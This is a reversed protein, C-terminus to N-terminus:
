NTTAIWDLNENCLQPIKSISIQKVKADGAFQTSLYIPGFRYSVDSGPMLIPNTYILTLVHQGASIHVKTLTNTLTPNGEFVSHGSFVEVGDILLRLQGPFSGALSLDYVGTEDVSFTRSFGGPGDRDVAGSIADTPIWKSPLDGNSFSIMYTKNRVVAFIKDDKARKTLFNAVEVCSPISAPTFNNGLPLMRKIVPSNAVKKWVEYHSGSWVLAYNLPPRSAVPSKRLVLLNYYNITSPDFLGIDAAFGKPVQTGDSMLIPHVRLESASEAGLDRLFYRAGFVSYETMLAPGQGSYLRDITKLENMQSYPAIWVNRYTYFDSLVVGSGVLVALFIVLYKVKFKVIQTRRSQHIRQWLEIAGIAATMLYIPSAVAIAKGTIWIGAFFYSYGVVCTSAVVIAPVVWLRKKISYFIGFALYCFAIAIVSYTLLPFVPDLRFDKSPWIGMTQVLNLSRGLNGSDKIEPVFLRVLFNNGSQLVIVGTVSFILMAALTVYFAYDSWSRVKVLLAVLLIPAVIGLSTKGGIFYLALIGIIAYLYNGREPSGQFAIFFSISFVLLPVILTIEKIGGWMVYSYMTSAMMSIASLGILLFRNGFYKRLILTILMASLGAVFSLFSQFIWAKEIGTLKSMVGFPIFSGIPYDFHTNSVGGYNLVNGGFVVQILREYTSSIVNPVTKGATMLRDTAAFWTATDDLQVWGAWSPKGYVMLPAGFGVYTILGALASIPDFRIYSRFWVGAVVLGLLGLAGITIAAYPALVQSMVLISGLIVILSFGAAVSMAMNMPKKALLSFLLGIGYSLMLLVAPAVIWILLNEVM